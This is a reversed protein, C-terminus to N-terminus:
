TFLLVKQRNRTHGTKGSGVTCGNKFFLAAIPKKLQFADVALRQVNFGFQRESQFAQRHENFVFRGFIKGAATEANIQFGAKVAFGAHFDIFFQEAFQGFSGNGNIFFIGFLHLFRRRAFNQRYFANNFRDVVFQAFVFFAPQKFVQLFTKDIGAVSKQLVSPGLAFFYGSRQGINQILNGDPDFFNFNHSFNQRLLKFLAQFSLYLFQQIGIALNGFVPQNLFNAQIHGPSVYTLFYVTQFRM